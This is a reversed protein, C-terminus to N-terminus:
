INERDPLYASLQKMFMKNFCASLESEQSINNIDLSITQKNQHFLEQM